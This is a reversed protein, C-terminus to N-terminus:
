SSARKAKAKSARAKGAGGGSLERRVQELLQRSDDAVPILSARASKTLTAKAATKRGAKWEGRAKQMDVSLTTEVGFAPGTMLQQVSLLNAAGAYHFVKVGNDGAQRQLTFIEGECSQQATLPSHTTALVQFNKLKQSLFERLQRQWSPHLHLDIEDVLLLGRSELPKKRHGFTSVMRYLLDGCWGAM